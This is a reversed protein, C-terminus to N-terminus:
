PKKPGSFYSFIAVKPGNEHNKQIKTMNGAGAHSASNKICYKSKTIEEYKWSQPTEANQMYIERKGTKVTLNSSVLRSSPRALGPSPRALVPRPGPSSRALGPSSPPTSSHSLALSSFARPQLARSRLGPLTFNVVTNQMYNASM